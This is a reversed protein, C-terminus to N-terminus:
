NEDAFECDEQSEPRIPCWTLVRRYLSFCYRFSWIACDNPLGLIFEGVSPYLASLVMVIFLAGRIFDILCLMLCTGPINEKSM